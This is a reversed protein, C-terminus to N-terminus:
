LDIQRDTQGDTRRDIRGGLDVAATLVDVPGRHWRLLYLVGGATRMSDSWVGYM